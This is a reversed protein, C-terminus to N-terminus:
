WDTKEEEGNLGTGLLDDIANTGFQEGVEPGTPCSLGFWSDTPFDTALRPILPAHVDDM